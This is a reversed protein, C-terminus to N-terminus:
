MYEMIKCKKLLLINEYLCFSGDCLTNKGNLEIEYMHLQRIEFPLKDPDKLIFYSDSKIDSQKKSRLSAVFEYMELETDFKLFPLNNTLRAGTTFVIIQLSHSM